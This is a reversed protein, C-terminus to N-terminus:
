PVEEDGLLLLSPDERVRRSFDSLNEATERLYGLAEVLNERSQRVLLSSNDIFPMAALVADNVSMMLADASSLAADLNERTSELRSLLRSVASLSRDIGPAARSLLGDTTRAISELEGVLAETREGLKKLTVRNEDVTAELTALLKDTRDLVSAVRDRMDPAVFANVRDLTVSVKEAIEGARNTLEDLGSSGPPIQGGPEQLGASRNGRSLEIYKLGTIGMSGLNAVTDKAVPTGEQLSVEVEVVSLDDEAIGIREVRGVRIGSYKVPSGVELGSLSVGDEAYRITYTDRAEGLRAGALAVIGGVLALLGVSVFVGLRVKQARSAAM